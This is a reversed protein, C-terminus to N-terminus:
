AVAIAYRESVSRKLPFAGREPLAARAIVCPIEYVVTKSVLLAKLTKARARGPPREIGAGKKIHAIKM